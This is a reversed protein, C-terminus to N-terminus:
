MQDRAELLERDRKEARRMNMRIEDIKKQYESEAINRAYRLGEIYGQGVPDLGEIEYLEIEADVAKIIEM